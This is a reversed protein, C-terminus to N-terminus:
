KGKPKTKQEDIAINLKVCLNKPHLLDDTIWADIDEPNSPFHKDKFAKAFGRGTVCASSNASPLEVAAPPSGFSSHANKADDATNM